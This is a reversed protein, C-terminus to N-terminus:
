QLEISQIKQDMNEMLPNKILRSQFEILQIGYKEKLVCM